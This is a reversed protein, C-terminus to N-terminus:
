NYTPVKVPLGKLMGDFDEQTMWHKPPAIAVSKGEKTTHIALSVTPRTSRRPYDLGIQYHYKGTGDKTENVIEATATIQLGGDLCLIRGHNARMQKPDITTTIIPIDMTLVMACM